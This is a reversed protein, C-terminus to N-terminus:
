LAVHQVGSLRAYVGNRALLEDHKGIEVIRGNELVVIRDANRVTSLRHAVVFTTSNRMLRELAEQILEESETDLASTAEDLILVRPARILARAIAIRQRQGGSLRAGREGVITDLRHPLQDIFELANANELAEELKKEDFHNMGYLVNDRITGHFLITEQPVVSLYRRYTRLDLTNMDQGDLLIRGETPRLFGIVLNLLTSKGAGSPGVIAITEGRQVELSVKVLSSDDTDPYAFTVDQITFRGQVQDVPAKGQNHELDPCELVEGLSRISEFGQAILPLMNTLALVGNSLGAFYGSLLVVDGVSVLNPRTYALYGATILCTMNALQFVVWSLSGFMANIMDLRLGASRVEELKQDVFEIEEAEVGHARTVPILQIMESLRSSMGEFEKRFDENRRDLPQRLGRVLIVTAPITLLYFLLFEPARVATTILAVVMTTLSSPVNTFLLRTMQEISEVDRLLKSQLAGSSKRYHFDMSLHQLRRTLASRLRVQMNRIASSILHVFLYHTPINQLYIVVLIASYVWLENLSHQDPQAVVDIINATLLPLAWVGSHKIIYVVISLLLKHVDGRYLYLLTRLPSEGRYQRALWDEPDYAQSKSVTM